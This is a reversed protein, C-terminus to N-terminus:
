PNDIGILMTVNDVIKKTVTAGTKSARTYYM